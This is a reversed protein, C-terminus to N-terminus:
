LYSEKQNCNYRIFIHFTLYWDKQTDEEFELNNDLISSM